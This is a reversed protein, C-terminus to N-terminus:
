WRETRLELGLVQEVSGKWQLSNTDMRSGEGNKACTEGSKEHWDTKTKLKM